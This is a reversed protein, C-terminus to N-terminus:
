LNHYITTDCDPCWDAVHKDQLDTVEVKNEHKCPPPPPPLQELDNVRQRLDINQERLATITGRCLGLMALALICAVSSVIFLVEGLLM